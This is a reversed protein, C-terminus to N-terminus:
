LLADEEFAILTEEVRETESYRHLDFINSFIVFLMCIIFSYEEDIAKDM